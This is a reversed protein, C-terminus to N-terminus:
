NLKNIEYKLLCNPSKLWYPLQNELQFFVGAAAAQENQLEIFTHEDDRCLFSRCLLFGNAYHM